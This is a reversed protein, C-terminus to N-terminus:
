PGLPAHATRGYQFISKQQKDCGGLFQGRLCERPRDNCLSHHPLQQTTVANQAATAAHHVLIVCNVTPWGRRVYSKTWSYSRIGIIQSAQLFRLIQLFEAFFRDPSRSRRRTAVIAAFQKWKKMPRPTQEHPSYTHWRQGTLSCAGNADHPM